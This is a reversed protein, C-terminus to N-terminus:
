YLILRGFRGPVHFDPVPTLTPSWCSFEPEADPPRDIRYFNARWVKGWKGSPCLARWPISLVAWWTNLEAAIGAWWQIEPCDWATDVKFEPHHRSAPNHVRADFLVGLPSVEFEFYDVPIQEGEALFVEVVEQDYLPDDRQTYTGWIHRDECDFRVFLCEASACLRLFTSQRVFHSGNWLFFPGVPDLHKWDWQEPQIAEWGLPLSPVQFAPTPMEESLTM